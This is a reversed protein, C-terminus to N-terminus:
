SQDPNMTLHSLAEEAGTGLSVEEERGEVSGDPLAEVAPATKSAGPHRTGKDKVKKKKKDETPPPPYAKKEIEQWAPSSQFEAQIPALIDVLAATVASKLLQPTLQM